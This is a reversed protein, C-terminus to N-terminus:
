PTAQIKHKQSCYQDRFYNLAAPSMGSTDLRSYKELGKKCVKVATPKQEKLEEASISLEPPSKAAQERGLRARERAAKLADRKAQLERLVQLTELRDREERGELTMMDDELDHALDRLVRTNGQIMSHHLKVEVKSIKDSVMRLCSTRWIHNPQRESIEYPWDHVHVELKLHELGTVHDGFATCTKCWRAYYRDRYKQHASYEPNAYGMHLIEVKRIARLGPKSATDLFSALVNVSSFCFTTRSYLYLEVDNRVKRCALLLNRTIGLGQGIQDSDLLHSLRRRPRKHKVDQEAWVKKRQDHEKNPRNRTILMRCEPIVYKYIENRLEGPLSLFSTQRKPRRKRSRKVKEKQVKDAVFVWQQGSVYPANSFCYWKGPQGNHMTPEGPKPHVISAQQEIEADPRAKSISEQNSTEIPQASQEKSLNTRTDRGPRSARAFFRQSAPVAFTSSSQKALESEVVSKNSTLKRNALEKRPRFPQRPRTKANDQIQPQPRETILYKPLQSSRELCPIDAPDDDSDEAIRRFSSWTTVGGCRPRTSRASM